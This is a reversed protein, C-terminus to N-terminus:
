VSRNERTDTNDQIRGVKISSHFLFCIVIQIQLLKCDVKRENIQLLWFYQYWHNFYVITNSKNIFLM